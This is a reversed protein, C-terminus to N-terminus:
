QDAEVLEAQDFENHCDTYFLGNEAVDDGVVEGFKWGEEYINGANDKSVSGFQVIELVWSFKRSGCDPCVLEAPQRSAEVTTETSM